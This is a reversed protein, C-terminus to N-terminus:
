LPNAAKVQRKSYKIVLGPLFRVEGCDILHVLMSMNSARMRSTRRTNTSVFGNGNANLVTSTIMDVRSDLTQTIASAATRGKDREPCAM